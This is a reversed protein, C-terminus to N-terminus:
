YDWDLGVGVRAWLPVNHVDRVHRGRAASERYEHDLCHDVRVHCGRTRTMTRRGVGRAQHGTIHRIQVSLLRDSTIYQIVLPFPKPANRDLKYM